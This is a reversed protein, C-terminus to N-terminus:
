GEIALLEVEFYLVSFPPIKPPAGKAGYGLSAPITLRRVGGVRMGPIGEDWGKILMGTGIPFTAGASEDFTNGDDLKGVYRVTIKDGAKCAPGSGVKADVM